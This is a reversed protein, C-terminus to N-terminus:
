APPSSFRTFSLKLGFRRTKVRWGQLGPNEVVHFALHPDVAFLLAPSGKITMECLGHFESEAQQSVQVLSAVKLNLLCFNDWPMPVQSGQTQLHCPFREQERSDTLLLPFVIPVELPYGIIQRKCLGRVYEVSRYNYRIIALEHPLFQLLMARIVTSRKAISTIPVDQAACSAKAGGAREVGDRLHDVLRQVRERLIECRCEFHRREPLLNAVSAAM